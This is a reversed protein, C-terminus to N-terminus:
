GADHHSVVGAGWHARAHECGRETLRKIPHRSDQKLLTSTSGAQTTSEAHLVHLEADAAVRVLYEIDAADIDRLRIRGIIGTSHDILGRGDNLGRETRVNTLRLEGIVMGDAEFATTLFPGDGCWTLNEVQFLEVCQGLEGAGGGTVELDRLTIDAINGPGCLPQARSGGAMEGTYQQCSLWKGGDAVRIRVDNLRVNSIRPGGRTPGAMGSLFRLGLLCDEGVIAEGLVDFTDGPGTFPYGEYASREDQPFLQDVLHTNVIALFDDGSWRCEFNRVRLRRGRGVHLGDTNGYIEPRQERQQVILLDLLSFGDFDSIYLGFCRTNLITGSFSGRVGMLRIGHTWGQDATHHAQNAGKWVVGLDNPPASDSPYFAGDVELNWGNCNWVGGLVHIESMGDRTVGPPPTGLYTAAPVVQNRLAAPRISSQYDALLPRNSGPLLIAGCGPLPAIVVGHPILLGTVSVRADWVVRLPEGDLATDLIAQVAATQNTGYRTSWLELSSDSLIGSALLSITRLSPNTLGLRAHANETSEMPTGLHTPTTRYSTGAHDLYTRDQEIRLFELYCNDAKTM